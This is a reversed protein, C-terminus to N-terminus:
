ILMIIIYMGLGIVFQITRSVPTMFKTLVANSTTSQDFWKKPYIEEDYVLKSLYNRYTYIVGNHLFSFTLSSGLFFLIFVWWPNENAILYGIFSMLLIIAGRQTMFIPHVDLDDEMMTNTLGGSYKYHWLKAETIGEFLTFIFWIIILIISIWVINM